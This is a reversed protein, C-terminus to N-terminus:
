GTETFSLSLCGFRKAVDANEVGVLGVMARVGSALCTGFGSSYVVVALSSKGGVDDDGM